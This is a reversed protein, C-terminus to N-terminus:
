TNDGHAAKTLAAFNKMSKDRFERYEAETVERLKQYPFRTVSGVDQRGKGPVITYVPYTTDDACALTMDSVIVKVGRLCTFPVLNPFLEVNVPEATGQRQSFIVEFYRRGKKPPAKPVPPIVTEAAPPAAPPTANSALGFGGAVPVVRHTETLKRKGLQMNAAAETEFPQGDSKLIIGPEM